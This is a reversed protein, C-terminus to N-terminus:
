KRDGRGALLLMNRKEKKRLYEYRKRMYLLYKYLRYMTQHYREHKGYRAASGEYWASEKVYVDRLGLMVLAKNWAHNGKLEEESMEVAVQQRKDDLVDDSFELSGFLEGEAQVPMGMFLKLLQKVAKQYARDDINEITEATEITEVNEITETAEITEAIGVTEKSKKSEAKEIDKMQELTRETFDLLGKELHEMFAKRGPLVEGYCPAYGEETKEYGMTMGHPASFVTEFLCNSFYVKEQLGKEPSFYYCFYDKRQVNEPLEYLGWYYGTLGEARGLNKLVMNLTKQMSGVWGSDVLAAKRKDLLGEQQLYGQLFPYTERSRRCVCEMFFSCNELRKRIDPLKAYPIGAGPERDHFAEQLVRKKEEEKLGGRSLIKELTVDIGGRCLYELAEEMDLHFIPIRVSYRSCSLYRCEIPLNWKSCYLLACRYMFYGDRALFYLREIRKRKAEKLLWLIFSNLAPGLVSEIRSELVTETTKKQIQGYVTHNQQLIKRYEALREQEIDKQM